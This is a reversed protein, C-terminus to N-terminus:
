IKIKKDQFDEEFIKTDKKLQTNDFIMDLCNSTRKVKFFSKYKYTNKDHAIKPFEGEMCARLIPNDVKRMSISNKFLEENTIPDIVEPAIPEITSENDSWNLINLENM